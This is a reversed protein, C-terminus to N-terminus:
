LWQLHRRHFEMLRCDHQRDLLVPKIRRSWLLDQRDWWRWGRSAVHFERHSHRQRLETYDRLGGLGFSTPKAWINYSFATTGSALSNDPARVAWGTVDIGANGVIAGNTVGTSGVTSGALTQYYGDLAAGGVGLNPATTGVSPAAPASIPAQDLRYYLTPNLSLVYDSYTVAQLSAPAIAFLAAALPIRTNM